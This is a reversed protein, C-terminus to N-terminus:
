GDEGHDIIIRPKRTTYLSEDKARNGNHNVFVIVLKEGEKPGDFTKSYSRKKSKGNDLHIEYAKEDENYVFYVTVNNRVKFDLNYSGDGNSYIEYSELNTKGRSLFKIDDDIVKINKDSNSDVFGINFVDNKVELDKSFSKESEQTTPHLSFKTGNNDISYEREVFANDLLDFDLSYAGSDDRKIKFGKLLTPNKQDLQPTAEETSCSTFVIAVILSLSLFKIKKM